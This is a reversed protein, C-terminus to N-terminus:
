KTKATANVKIKYKYRPAGGIPAAFFPVPVNYENTIYIVVDNRYDGKKIIQLDLCKNREDAEVNHNSKSWENDNSFKVQHGNKNSSYLKIQGDNDFDFTNIIFASVLNDAFPYLHSAQNATNQLRVSYEYTFASGGEVPVNENSKISFFLKYVNGDDGGLGDIVVKFVYANLEEAWEGQLANYPGFSTWKGDTAPEAAFTRTDILIGSKYNGKPDVGKADPNSFAGKGGYISFKTKTNWGHNNEDLEGFSEPDFVRIFFQETQNKPVMFFVTQSFDDDGWSHDSENGFTVLYPINEQGSPVAQAILIASNLICSSFLLVAIYKGFIEKMKNAKLPKPIILIIISYM